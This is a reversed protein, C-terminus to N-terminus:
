ASTKIEKQQLKEFLHVMFATAIVPAIMNVFPMTMFFVIVIGGSWLYFKHKKRLTKVTKADIRRLAVLEFYERSFLYGNFGYFPKYFM